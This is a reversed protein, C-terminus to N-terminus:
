HTTMYDQIEQKASAEVQEEEQQYVTFNTLLESSILNITYTKVRRVQKNGVASWIELDLRLVVSVLSDLNTPWFLYLLSFRM